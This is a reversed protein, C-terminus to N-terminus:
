IFTWNTTAEHWLLTTWRVNTSWEEFGQLHPFSSFCICHFLSLRNCKRYKDGRVGEEKHGKILKFYYTVLSWVWM